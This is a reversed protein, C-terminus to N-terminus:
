VSIVKEEDFGKSQAFYYGRQNTVARIGTESDEFDCNFHTHGFAWVKVSGSRWCQEDSLDTMFGSSIKSKAHAPDIVKGDVSPCYHTLIIIKRQPELRSISEVETNLWKRDTYHAERHAETSWDNILYFDNLGFNVSDKQAPLIDSFLPCGLITVEPSIDYRTQDLFVFEGLVEGGESANKLSDQFEKIKNKATSWDSHYPEHNGLVFFVIKFNALQQRLFDFFGKDKVYGIDGLLALYPTKPAISFLDYAAPAELHLDSLIQLRTESM